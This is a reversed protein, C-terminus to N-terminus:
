QTDVKLWEHPCAWTFKIPRMLKRFCWTSWPMLKFHCTHRSQNFYWLNILLHKVVHRGGLCKICKKKLQYRNGWFSASNVKLYLLGYDDVVNNFASVSTQAIGRLCKRAVESCLRWDDFQSRLSATKVKKMVKFYTSLCQAQLYKSCAAFKPGRMASVLTNPILTANFSKERRNCGCNLGVLWGCFAILSFFCLHVCPM